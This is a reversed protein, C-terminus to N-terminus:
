DTAPVRQRYDGQGSELTVTQESDQYGNLSVRVSHQGPALHTLRLKGQQSTSGVPSDDVYVMSQGPSSQVILTAPSSPVPEPRPTPAVPANGRPSLSRLTDILSDTGGANRIRSAVDSTVQFSIGDARAEQAVDSSPVDGTLLGIVDDVSLPKGGANLPSNLALVFLLVAALSALLALTKLIPRHGSYASM